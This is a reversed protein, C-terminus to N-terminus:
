KGERADRWASQEREMWEEFERWRRRHARQTLLHWVVEFAGFGLCIGAFFLLIPTITM